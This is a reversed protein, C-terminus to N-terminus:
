SEFALLEDGDTLTTPEDHVGSADLEARPVDVRRDGGNSQISGVRRSRAKPGLPSRQPTAPWPACAIQMHAAAV